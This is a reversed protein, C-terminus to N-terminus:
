TTGETAADGFEAHARCLEGYRCQECHPGPQPRATGSDLIRFGELARHRAYQRTLSLTAAHVIEVMQHKTDMGARLGRDNLIHRQRGNLVTEVELIPVQGEGVPLQSMLIMIEWFRYPDQAESPGPTWEWKKADPLNVMSTFFTVTHNTREVELVDAQLRVTRDDGEIPTLIVPNAEGKGRWEHYTRALHERHAWGTLLKKSAVEIVRRETESLFPAIANWRENYAQRLAARAEKGDPLQPLRVNMPLSAFRMLSLRESAPYLRLRQEVVARFGCLRAMSLQAPTVPQDGPRIQEQVGVQIVEAVEPPRTPQAWAEVIDREARSRCMDPPPLTWSRDYVKPALDEQGAARLTARIYGSEITERDDDVLPYMLTLSDQALAVTRAWRDREALATETSNPLWHGQDRLAQVIADPLITNERRRVPIKSELAGLVWVQRVDKLSSGAVLLQVGNESQAPVTVMENTWWQRLYIVLQAFSVLQAGFITAYDALPRQLATIARDDRGETPDGPDPTGNVHMVDGILTRLHDRWQILTLSQHGYLARWELACQLWVMRESQDRAWVALDGWAGNGEFALQRTINDLEGWESADLGVYSLQGVRALSRPDPENLAELLELCFRALGNTLLPASYHARIPVGFRSASVIALPAYEKVDPVVLAQHRGPAPDAMAERLAWECEALADFAPHLALAPPPVPPESKETFLNAWWVPKESYVVPWGMRESVRRHPEFLPSEASVADVVVRVDLGMTVLWKAWREALLHESTGMLVVVGDFMPLPQPLITLSQRLRDSGLLRNQDKLLAEAHAGLSALGQTWERWPGSMTEAVAMLQDVGIDAQRLDSWCDALEVAFGVHHASAAFLHDPGLTRQADVFAACLQGKTAIRGAPVGCATLLRGAFEGLPVTEMRELQDEDLLDRASKLRPDDPGTIVWRGGPLAALFDRLHPATPPLGFLTGRATAM